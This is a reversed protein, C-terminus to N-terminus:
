RSVRRLQDATYWAFRGTKPLRAGVKAVAYLTPRGGAQRSIAFVRHEVRGGGIRVISGSRIEDTREIETATM